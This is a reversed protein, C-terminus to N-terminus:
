NKSNRGFRERTTFSCGTRIIPRIYDSVRSQIVAQTRAYDKESRADSSFIRNGKLEDTGMLTVLAAMRKRATLIEESAARVPM